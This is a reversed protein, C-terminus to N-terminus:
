IMGYHLCSTCSTRVGVRTSFGKFLTKSGSSCMVNTTCLKRINMLVLKDLKHFVEFVWLPFMLLLRVASEDTIVLLCKEDDLTLMLNDCTRDVFLKARSWAQEFLVLLQVRTHLIHMEHEDYVVPPEFLFLILNRDRKVFFKPNWYKERFLNSGFPPNM